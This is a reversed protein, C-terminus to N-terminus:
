TIPKNSGSSAEADFYIYKSIMNLSLFLLFIAAVVNKNEMSELTWPNRIKEPFSLQCLQPFRMTSLSVSRCHNVLLLAPLIQKPNVNRLLVLFLNERTLGISRKVTKMIRNRNENEINRLPLVLQLFWLEERPSM